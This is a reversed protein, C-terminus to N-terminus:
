GGAFLLTYYIKPVELDSAGCIRSRKKSKLNTAAMTERMLKDDIDINTRMVVEQYVFNVTNM